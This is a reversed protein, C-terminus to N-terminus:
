RRRQHEDDGAPGGQRDRYRALYMPAEFRDTSRRRCGNNTTDSM